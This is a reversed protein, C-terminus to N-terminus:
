GACRASGRFRALGTSRSVRRTCVPRHARGYPPRTTRAWIIHLSAGTHIPAAAAAAASGIGPSRDAVAM